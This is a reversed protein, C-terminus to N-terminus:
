RQGGQDEAPAENRWRNYQEVLQAFPGDVPGREAMAHAIGSLEAIRRLTRDHQRRLAELADGGALERAKIAEEQWYVVDGGAERDLLIRRALEHGMPDDMIVWRSSALQYQVDGNAVIRAPLVDETEKGIWLVDVEEPDWVKGAREAAKANASAIVMAEGDDRCEPLARQMEAEIYESRKM